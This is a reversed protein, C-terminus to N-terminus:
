SRFPDLAASLRALVLHAPNEELVRHYAMEEDLKAHELPAPPMLPIPAWIWEGIVAPGSIRASGGRNTRVVANPRQILQLAKAWQHHVRDRAFELGALDDADATIVIGNDAAFNIIAIIWSLAEFLPLFIANAPSDARAILALLRACADDFGAILTELDIEHTM